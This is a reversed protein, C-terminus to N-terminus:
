GTYFLRPIFLVLSPLLICLLLVLMMMCLAFTPKIIMGIFTPVAMIVAGAAANKGIYIIGLGILCIFLWITLLLYNIVPPLQIDSTRESQEYLLEEEDLEDIYYEDDYEDYM